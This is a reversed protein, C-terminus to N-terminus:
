KVSFGCCPGTVGHFFFGEEPQRHKTQSSAAGGRLLGGRQVYLREFQFAELRFFDLGDLADEGAVRRAVAEDGVAFFEDARAVAVAAGAFFAAKVAGAEDLVDEGLLSCNLLSSGTFSGRGPSRM